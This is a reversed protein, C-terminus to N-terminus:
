PREIKSQACGLMGLYSLGLYVAALTGAVQLEGAQIRRSVTALPVRVLEIDETLDLQQQGVPQADKALFLHIRNTEKVPNDYLTALPILGAASYGTEEQLERLAATDAAEQAPDFTGAPLELLVQQAGHRYQRVFVIEQQPTVPLVLAVDPRVSVFYDEVVQGDPLQVCDQRVKYWRHDFALRSRLIKWHKDTPRADTM